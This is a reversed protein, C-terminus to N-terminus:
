RELSVGRELVQHAQRDVHPGREPAPDRRRRLLELHRELLARRTQEKRLRALETASVQRDERAAARALEEASSTYVRAWERGRSLDVYMERRNVAGMSEPGAAILVRDVTRSQGSVSTTVYGSALHGYEKPIVWGRHDVVDGQADFRAVTLVDGNNLRHGERTRGGLTIRVRDGEALRITGPRYAQFRAALHAPPPSGEAVEVREGRRRGPANQTFEILDGKRYVHPDARQAETMQLSCLQLFEREQGLQGRAKLGARIQESVRAGEAITPAIVLATPTVEEWRDGARRREPKVAELYDAALLKHREADPVEKVWGLAKLKLLGRGPRNRELEVAAKYDKHKQRRSRLVRAPTIGAQSQLLEFPSGHQGPARHQRDDGVLWVRADLDRALRLLAATDKTGLMAAEDVLLIQGRAKEQLRRDVLLAAVPAADPFGAEVLNIRSAAASPAFAHVSFGSAEAGLRAEELLTTKGSGAAGVLMSVFSHSGLLSHVAARQDIALATNQIEWHPDIAPLSSKGARALKVLEQEQGLVARSAVYLRGEVEATFRDGSELEKWADEVTIKGVGYTLAYALLERAPCSSKREFVHAAAHEIAARADGQAPEYGETQRRKAQWHVEAIAKQEVATLRGAWIRRLEAPTFEDSKHERTRAGLQGKETADIVGREKAEQEILQKRRSFKATASAPVGAVEFYHKGKREVDYGLEELKSALRAHFAAQYYPMDRLVDFANLSKWQQEIPDYSASLVFYHEHPQMDPVGGIPRTTDHEARYWVLNGSTRNEDKGGKRVRVAAAQEMEQMTQLSAWRRAEAIRPDPTLAELVSLSKPGDFTVDIGVIRDARMRETLQEGTLPHLNHCLREFHSKDNSGAVGLLGAARGGLQPCLEPPLAKGEALYDALQYYAFAARADRQVHHRIM